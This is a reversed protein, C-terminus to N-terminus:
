KEPNNRLHDRLFKVSKEMDEVLKEVATRPTIGEGSFSREGYFVIWTEDRKQLEDIPCYTPRRHEGEFHYYKTVHHPIVRDDVAVHWLVFTWGAITVTEKHLKEIEDSPQMRKRKAVVRDWIQLTLTAIGIVILMFFAVDVLGPYTETTSQRM